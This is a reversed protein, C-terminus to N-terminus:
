LVERVTWAQPICGRPTFPPDGDFIEGAAGLGRAKLHRGHARPERLYGAWTGSACAEADPGLRRRPACDIASAPMAKGEGRNRPGSRLAEPNGPLDAKWGLMQAAPTTSSKLTTRWREQWGPPFSPTLWPSIEFRGSPM